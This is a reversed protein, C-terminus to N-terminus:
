RWSWLHVTPDGAGSPDFPLPGQLQAVHAVVAPNFYLSFAPLDDSFIAVARAILETRDDRGLTGTLQEVVRDYEPNSWAGRNTGTWRNDARPTDSTTHQILSEECCTGGTTFFSPFTSRAELDRGQSASMVAERVDFGARRWGDATITVEAENQASALVKLEFAPHEEGPRSFFGDAGKAYGADAM